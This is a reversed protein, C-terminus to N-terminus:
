RRFDASGLYLLDLPDPKFRVTTGTRDTEGIVRMDQTKDGRSFKMQYIKGGRHVEVELWESVQGPTTFPFMREPSFWRTHTCTLFM